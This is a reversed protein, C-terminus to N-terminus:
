QAASVQGGPNQPSIQLVSGLNAQLYEAIKRAAIAHGETTPHWFDAFFTAREEKSLATNLQFVHMGAKRAASAAEKSEVEANQSPFQVYVVPVGASRCVDGIHRYSRAIIGNGTKYRISERIHLARRLVRDVIHNGTKKFHWWLGADAGVQDDNDCFQLLILDPHFGLVKTAILEGEQEANYGGVAMNYVEFRSANPMANLLGELHVPFIDEPKQLWGFTVSDGVVCIRKVGPPKEKSFERDRFGDSNSAVYDNLRTGPRIEYVLIPDTSVIHFLGNKDGHWKFAEIQERSANTFANAAPDLESDDNVFPDALYSGIILTVFLLTAFVVCKAVFRVISRFPISM